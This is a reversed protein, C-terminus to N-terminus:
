VVKGLAKADEAYKAYSDKLTASNLIMEAVLTGGDFVRTRVWNSETRKSESLAVIERELRYSHGVFLPGKVLKIEQGAFLGIAPGRSRFGARGSSYGLLVSIMELPIVPRGWPSGGDQSYWACPETIVKLKDNLTFPYSNGMHQDFGM